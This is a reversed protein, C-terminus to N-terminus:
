ITRSADPRSTTPVRWWGTVLVVVVTMELANPISM